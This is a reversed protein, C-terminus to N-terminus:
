ANADRIFPHSLLQDASLRKTPNTDLCCSLFKECIKSIKPPFPPQIGSAIYNIIEEFRNSINSWPPLGTLMEILTCGFSWIDASYTHGTRKLVEPAM